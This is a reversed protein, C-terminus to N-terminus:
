SEEWEPLCPLMKERVFCYPEGVGIVSEQNSPQYGLNFGLKLSFFFSLSEIDHDEIRGCKGLRPLSCFISYSSVALDIHFAHFQDAVFAKECGTGTRMKHGFLKEFLRDKLGCLTRM